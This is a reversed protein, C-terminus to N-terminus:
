DGIHRKQRKRFVSIESRLFNDWEKVIIEQTFRKARRLANSQLQERLSSDSLVLRLKDTLAVENDPECLIGDIGDTICEAQRGKYDCAITACGQSMAEVMVLGWGEYRSSLCFVAARRYEDVIDTTFEEFIIQSSEKSLNKLYNKSELSGAGVIKLKWHPYEKAIQLWSTILVDFGKYHWADLRGVALVINEKKPVEQLPDLFLPNYMVKVRKLRHSIYNKDAETLVTVSDFMRDLYWKKYYLYRSMPANRPREFSDHETIIVPCKWKTFKRSLLLEHPFVHLIEVIIDPKLDDIASCIQKFIVYRKKIINSEGDNFWIIRIHSSLPYAIEGKNHTMVIVEWGLKCLGNAINTGVREAGGTNLTHTLILIKM